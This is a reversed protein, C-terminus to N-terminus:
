KEHCRALRALFPQACAVTPSRQSHRWRSLAPAVEQYAGAHAAHADHVAVEDFEVVQLALNEEVFVVDGGIQGFGFGGRALQAADVGIDGDLRDTASTLAPM